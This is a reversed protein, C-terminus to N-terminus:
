PYVYLKVLFLDEFTLPTSARLHQEIVISHVISELQPADARCNYRTHMRLPPLPPPPVLLECNIDFTMKVLNQHDQNEKSLRKHGQFWGNEFDPRNMQFHKEMQERVDQQWQIAVFVVMSVRTGLEAIVSGVTVKDMEKGHKYVHRSPAACISCVNGYQGAETKFYFALTNEKTLLRKGEPQQQLLVKEISDSNHVLIDSWSKTKPVYKYSKARNPRPALDPRPTLFVINVRHTDSM